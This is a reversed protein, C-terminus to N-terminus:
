DRLKHAVLVTFALMGVFSGVSILDSIRALYDNPIADAMVLIMISIFSFAIAKIERSWQSQITFWAAPLALLLGAIVRLGTELPKQSDAYISFRNVIATALEATSYLLIGAVVSAVLILAWRWIQNRRALREIHSALQQDQTTVTGQLSAVQQELECVRQSTRDAEEEAKLRREREASQEDALRQRETHLTRIQENRDAVLRKRIELSVRPIDAERYPEGRLTQSKVFDFTRVLQEV